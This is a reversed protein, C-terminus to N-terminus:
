DASLATLMGPRVADAFASLDGFDPLNDRSGATDDFGYVCCTGTMTYVIVVAGYQEWQSVTDNQGGLVAGSAASVASYKQVEKADIAKVTAKITPTSVTVTEAIDWVTSDGSSESIADFESEPLRYTHGDPCSTAQAFTADM